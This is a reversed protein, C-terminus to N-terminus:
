DITVYRLAAENTAELVVPPAVGADYAEKWRLACLCWRDGPKLGPFQPPYPTMSDNGRSKTFKLFESTVIAAVVHRGQDSQDTRCYGDRFYGTVPDLGYQSLPGGLVNKAQKAAAMTARTLMIVLAVVVHRLLMNSWNGVGSSTLFNGHHESAVICPTPSKCMCIFLRVFAKIPVSPVSLIAANSIGVTVSPVSFSIHTCRADELKRLKSHGRVTQCEYRRLGTYNWHTSM